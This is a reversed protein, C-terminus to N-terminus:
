RPRVTVARTTSRPGYAAPRSNSRVGAVLCFSPKPEVPVTHALRAQVPDIGLQGAAADVAAKTWGDFVANEGVADTGSMAYDTVAVEGGCYISFEDICAPINQHAVAFMTAYVPHAHIM